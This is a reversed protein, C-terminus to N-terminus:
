GTALDLYRLRYLDDSYDVYKSWELGYQFYLVDEINTHVFSFMCLEIMVTIEISEFNDLFEPPLVDSVYVYQEESVYNGFNSLFQKTIDESDNLIVSILEIDIFEFPQDILGYDGAINTLREYVNSILKVMKGFVSVLMSLYTM